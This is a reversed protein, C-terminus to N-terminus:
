PYPSITSINHSALINRLWTIVEDLSNHLPMFSFSFRSGGSKDSDLRSAERLVNLFRDEPRNPLVSKYSFSLFTVGGESIFEFVLTENYNLLHARNARGAIVEEAEGLFTEFNYGYFFTEVNFGYELVKVSTAIDIGDAQYTRLGLIITATECDVATGTLTIVEDSSM